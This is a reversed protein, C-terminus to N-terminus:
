YYRRKAGAVGESILIRVLVLIPQRTVDAGPGPGPGPGLASSLDKLQLRSM